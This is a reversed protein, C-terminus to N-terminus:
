LLLIIKLIFYTNHPELLTNIVTVLENTLKNNNISFNYTNFYGSTIYISIQKTDISSSGSIFENIILRDVNNNITLPIYYIYSLKNINNLKNSSYISNHYIFNNILLNIENANTTLTVFNNLTLIIILILIIM